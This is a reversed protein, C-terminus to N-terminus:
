RTKGQEAIERIVHAAFGAGEKDAIRAAELMGDIFISSVSAANMEHILAIASLHEVCNAIVPYVVGAVSHDVVLKDIAKVLVRIERASRCADPSKPDSGM